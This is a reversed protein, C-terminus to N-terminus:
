RCCPRIEYLGELKVHWRTLGQAADTHASMCVTQLSLQQKTFSPEGAMSLLGTRQLLPGFRICPVFVLSVILCIHNAVLIM